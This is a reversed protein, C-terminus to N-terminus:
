TRQRRGQKWQYQHALVTIQTSVSINETQRHLWSPLRLTSLIYFNITYMRLHVKFMTNNLHSQTGGNSYSNMDKRVDKLSRGQM